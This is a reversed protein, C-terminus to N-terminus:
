RGEGRDRAAPPKAPELGHDFLSSQCAQIPGPELEPGPSAVVLRPPEQVPAEPQFPAGGGFAATRVARADELANEYDLREMASWSKKIEAVDEAIGYQSSHGKEEAHLEIAVMLPSPDECERLREGITMPNYFALRALADIPTNPHVSVAYSCETEFIDDVRLCDDNAVMKDLVSSPCEPHGAIASFLHDDFGENRFTEFMAELVKPSTALDGALKEAETRSLTSVDVAGRGELLEKVAMGHELQEHFSLREYFGKMSARLEWSPGKGRERTEADLAVSLATAQADQHGDLRASLAKAIHPPGEFALHAAAKPGMAALLGHPDIGARRLEDLGDVLRDKPFSPNCLAAIKVSPHWDGFLRVLEDPALKPDAAFTAREEALSPEKVRASSVPVSRPFLDPSQMTFREKTEEVKMWFDATELRSLESLFRDMQRHVNSPIEKGCLRYAAVVGSLFNTGESWLVHHDVDDHRAALACRLSLPASPNNMVARRVLREDDKALVDFLGRPCNPNEALKRRVHSNGDGALIWWTGPDLAAQTVVGMRVDANASAALKRLLDPDCDPRHAVLAQAYGAGVEVLLRQAEVSLSPRKALVERVRDCGFEALQLELDLPLARNEPVGLAPSMNWTYSMWDDTEWDTSLRELLDKPCDPNRAVALRVEFYPDDGLARLESESLGSQEARRVRAIEDPHGDPLVGPESSPEDGSRFFRRRTEAAMKEFVNVFSAKDGIRAAAEELNERVAAELERKEEPSMRDLPDAELFEVVEGDVVGYLFVGLEPREFVELQLVCPSGGDNQAMLTKYIDEDIIRDWGYGFAVPVTSGDLFVAHGVKGGGDDIRIWRGHLESIMEFSM